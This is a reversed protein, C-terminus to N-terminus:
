RAQLHEGGAKFASTGRVTAMEQTNRENAVGEGELGGALRPGGAGAHAGRIISNTETGLHNDTHPCVEDEELLGM